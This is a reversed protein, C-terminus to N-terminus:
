TINRELCNNGFESFSTFASNLLISLQIYEHTHVTVPDITFSLVPLPLSTTTPWLRVAKLKNDTQRDTQRDRHRRMPMRALPGPPQLGGLSLCFRWKEPFALLWFHFYINKTSILRFFVSNMRALSIFHGFDPIKVLVPYPSNPLTLKCTLMDTKEPVTSFKEPLSPEAGTSFIPGYAWTDLDTHDTLTGIDVTWATVSVHTNWRDCSLKDTAPSLRDM